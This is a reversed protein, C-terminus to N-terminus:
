SRRQRRSGPLPETLQAVVSERWEIRCLTQHAAEDVFPDTQDGIEDLAADMRLTVDVPTEPHERRQDSV